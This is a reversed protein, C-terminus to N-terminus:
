FVLALYPNSTGIGFIVPLVFLLLLPLGVSYKKIASWVDNIDNPQFINGSEYFNVTGLYAGFLISVM